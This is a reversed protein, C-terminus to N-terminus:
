NPSSLHFLSPSSDRNSHANEKISQEFFFAKFDSFSEFNLKLQEYFKNKFLLGFVPYNM